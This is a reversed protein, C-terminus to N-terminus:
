FVAAALFFIDTQRAHSLAGKMQTRRNPQWGDSSALSHSFSYSYLTFQGWWQPLALVLRPSPQGLSYHHHSCFAHNLIQNPTMLKLTSNRWQDLESEEKDFILTILITVQGLFPSLRTWGSWSWGWSWSWFCAQSSFQPTDRAYLIDKWIRGITTM